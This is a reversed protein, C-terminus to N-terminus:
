KKSKRKSTLFGFGLVLFSGLITSPEPVTKRSLIGDIWSAYTSVRTDFGLEGFSRNNFPDIDIPFFGGLSFSTVGAIEGDIFTPGGSDGSALFVEEEGLGLDNIGFFFGFADNEPLGNDFDYALLAGPTITPDVIDGLSDYRNKGSRKALDFFVEGENGNGSNGYGVKTGVQFVEDTDRYIDYRQAADPAIAGLELIAIDGGLFDGKWDPHIFYQTVPLIVDGTDLEFRVTGNTSNLSGLDDTLCHAATLIHRGTTLLSGSCFNSFDPEIIEQVLVDVVGDFPSPPRVIRDDPNGFTTLAKVPLAATFATLFGFMSWTALEKAKSFTLTNM